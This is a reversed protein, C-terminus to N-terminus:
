SLAMGTAKTSFLPLHLVFSSPSFTISNQM